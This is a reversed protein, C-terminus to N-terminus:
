KDRYKALADALPIASMEGRRFAALREEVEATWARDIEPDPADLSDLLHEVLELRESPPLSTALASLERSADNMSHGTLRNERVFLSRYIRRLAM